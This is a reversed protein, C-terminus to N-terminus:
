KVTVVTVDIGSNILNQVQEPVLYEGIHVVLTNVTKEVQFTFEANHRDDVTGQSDFKPNFHQSVIVSMKM